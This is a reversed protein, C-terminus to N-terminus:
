ANFTQWDKNSLNAQQGDKAMLTGMDKYSVSAANGDQLALRDYNKLMQDGLQYLKSNPGSQSLGLDQLKQMGQNLEARSIQGNKDADFYQLSNLVDQGNANKAGDALRGLAQGVQQGLQESLGLKQAIKSFGQGALKSAGMAGTLSAGMNQSKLLELGLSAATGFNM